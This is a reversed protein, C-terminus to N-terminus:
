TFPRDARAHARPGNGQRAAGDPREPLPHRLREAGPLPHRADRRADAAAGRRGRLSHRDARRRSRLRRHEEGSRARGEHTGAAPLRGRAARPSCAAVADISRHRCAVLETTPSGSSCLMARRACRGDPSRTARRARDQAPLPHEGSVVASRDAPRRSEGGADGAVMARRAPRCPVRPVGRRVGPDTLLFTAFEEPFVDHPGVPYWVESSM